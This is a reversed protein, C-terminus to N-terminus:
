NWLDNWNEKTPTGGPQLDSIRPYTLSLADSRQFMNTFNTVKQINWNQLKQNFKLAGQFMWMMTTVNSTNWNSIDQNFRPSDAFLSTMDTVSSTNWATYTKGNVTVQKTNIDVNFNHCDSFLYSMDTVKSTDWTSVDGNFLNCGGFILSMNTVKSTDWSSLDSNFVTAANFMGQLNTVQSTNWKSLDENFNNEIWKAIGDAERDLSCWMDFSFLWSMDTIASTDWESIDGYCKILQEYNSKNTTSTPDMQYKVWIEIGWFLTGQEINVVKTNPITNDIFKKKSTCALDNKGYATLSCIGLKVPFGYENFLLTNRNKDSIRTVVHLIPEGGITLPARYRINNIVDVANQVHVPLKNYADTGPVITDWGVGTQLQNCLADAGSKPCDQKRIALAVTYGDHDFYEKLIQCATDPDINV